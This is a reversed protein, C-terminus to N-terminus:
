WLEVNELHSWDESGYIVGDWDEEKIWRTANQGQEQDDGSVPVEILGDWGERSGKWKEGVDKVYPVDGEALLAWNPVGFFFTASSLVIVTGILVLTLFILWLFLHRRVKASTSIPDSSM